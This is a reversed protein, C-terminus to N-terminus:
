RRRWFRWSRRKKEKVCGEGNCKPCGVIGDGSCESCVKYGKPCTVEVIEIEPEVVVDEDIEDEEDEIPKPAPASHRKLQLLARRKTAKGEAALEEPTLLGWQYCAEEYVETKRRAVDEPKRNWWYNGGRIYDLFLNAGRQSLGTNRSWACATLQEKIVRQVLEPVTM